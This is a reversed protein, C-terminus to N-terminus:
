QVCSPQNAGVSQLGEQQDASLGAINIDPKFHVAEKGKVSTSQTQPTSGSSCNM